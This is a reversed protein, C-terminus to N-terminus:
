PLWGRTLYDAFMLTLVIGLWFFGALAFVRVLGRQYRLQMFFIFVLAMKAAAIGLSVPAKWAGLPARAALATLALLVMLAAYNAFCVRATLHPAKM